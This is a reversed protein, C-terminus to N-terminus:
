LMIVQLCLVQQLAALTSSDSKVASVASQPVHQHQLVWELLDATYYDHINDTDVFGYYQLFAENPKAGYSLKVQMLGAASPGLLLDAAPYLM